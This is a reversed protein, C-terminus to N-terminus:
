TQPGIRPQLRSLSARAREERKEAVVDARVRELGCGIETLFGRRSADAKEGVRTQIVVLDLRSRGKLVLQGCWAHSHEGLRLIPSRAIADETAADLILAGEVDDLAKPGVQAGMEFRFAKAM